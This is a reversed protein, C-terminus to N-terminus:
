LTNSAARLMELHPIDDELYPKSVTQFGLGNYFKELYLQASIRVPEGPFAKAAENLARIMLLRGLGRGRGEDITMVRGISPEPFRVDPPLLRAYAILKGKFTEAWLHIAQDDLGDIDQYPCTQEVVFVAARAALIRYMDRSNLQEFRSVQWRIDVKDLGM